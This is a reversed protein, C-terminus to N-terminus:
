GLIQGGIVYGGEATEDIQVSIFSKIDGKGLEGAKTNLADTLAEILQAKEKKTWANPPVALRITPM